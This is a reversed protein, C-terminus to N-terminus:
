CGTSLHSAVQKVLQGPKAKSSLFLTLIRCNYNDTTDMILDIKGDRDLDGAWLLSPASEAGIQKHKVVTQKIGGSELVIEYNVRYEKEKVKGRVSMTYENSGLKLKVKDKLDLHEKSYTPSTTVAGAKLEPVGDILALPDRKDTIKVEMGTKAKPDEDIVPDNVLKWTMKTSKLEYQGPKTAFLGMWMKGSRAKLEENHYTTVEIIDAALAPAITACLLTSIIMKKFM